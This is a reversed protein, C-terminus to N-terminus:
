SCSNAVMKVSKVAFTPVSSMAAGADERAVDQPSRGKVEGQVVGSMNSVIAGTLEVQHGVHAKLDDVSMLMFSMPKGDSKKTAAEDKMSSDAKASTVKANNLMMHTMDASQAMCGTVHTDDATNKNQMMQVGGIPGSGPVQAAVSHAFPAVCALSFLVAMTRKM